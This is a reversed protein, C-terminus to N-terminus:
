PYGAILMVDEPYDGLGDSRPLSWLAGRGPDASYVVAQPPAEGLEQWVGAGPPLRYVRHPLPQSPDTAGEALLSGDATIAVLQPWKLVSPLNPESVWTYGGDGSCQVASPVGPGTAFGCIRWRAGPAPVAAVYGNMSPAPLRVWQAGGDPGSWLLLGIDGTNVLVLLGDGYPDAWFAQLSGGFDRGITRWTRWGDDSAYLGAQSPTSILAYTVGGHTALSFNACQQGPLNLPAWHAGSDRTALTVVPCGTRMDSGWYLVAIQADLADLSLDCVGGPFAPVGARPSIDTWTAAQDHSVWVSAGACAYVISGDSPAVVFTSSGPTIGYGRPPTVAHWTLLGSVYPTAPPSVLPHRAQPTPPEPTGSVPASVQAPPRSAATSASALRAFGAVVLAALAIAGAARLMRPLRRRRSAGSPQSDPQM